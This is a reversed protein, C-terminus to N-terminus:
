VGRFSVVDELPRRASRYQNNPDNVDEYGLAIGMIILLEYPIELKDRLIAPYAVLNYAPISGVGRDMAALMVSQSILGLDYISWSTLAREMCIYTVVPARFLRVNLNVFFESSIKGAQRSELFRIRTERLEVIRREIAEPWDGPPSLDPERPVNNKFNDAYAERISELTDGGAIYIQWPQTNAWSPSRLAATFIEVLTDRGIPDPLFARVSHRQTLAEIVEM